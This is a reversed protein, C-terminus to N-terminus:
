GGGGATIIDANIREVSTRLEEIAAKTRVLASHMEPWDSRFRRALAGDWVNPDSLTQGERNLADIQELLPGDIIRRMSAIATKATGTSLVRESM